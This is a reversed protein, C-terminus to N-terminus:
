SNNEVDPFRKQLDELQTERAKRETRSSKKHKKSSAVLKKYAQKAKQKALRIVRDQLERQTRIKEVCAVSQQFTKSSFYNKLARDIINKIDECHSFEHIKVNEEDLKYHGEKPVYNGNKKRCSIGIMSKPNFCGKRIRSSNLRIVCTVTVKIKTVNCNCTKTRDRRPCPVTVQFKLGDPDDKLFSQGFPNVKGKPNRYPINSGDETKLITIIEIVM